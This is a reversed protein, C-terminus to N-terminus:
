SVDGGKRTSSQWVEDSFEAAKEGPTLPQGALDDLWAIGEEYIADYRPNKVLPVLRLEKPKRSKQKEQLVHMREKLKKKKKESLNDMRLPRPEPEASPADGVALSLDLHENPAASLMPKTSYVHELLSPADHGFRDVYRKLYLSIDTPLKWERENLLRENSLSWRIGDDKDEYKSSFTKKDAGIELLAPEIRERVEQSWPGFKDFQWHANTFTKGQNRQAYSLDALYVYKILHIPGLQRDIQKDKAGAVLLVYQLLLDAHSPDFPM